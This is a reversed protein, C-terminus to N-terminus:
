TQHTKALHLFHQKFKKKFLCHIFEQAWSRLFDPSSGGANREFYFPPPKRCFLRTLIKNIISFTKEFYKCRTVAKENTGELAVSGYRNAAQWHAALSNINHVM